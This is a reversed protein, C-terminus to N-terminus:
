GVHSDSPLPSSIPFNRKLDARVKSFEIDGFNIRVAEAEGHLDLDLASGCYEIMWRCYYKLYKISDTNYMFRADHLQSLAVRTSHLATELNGLGADVVAELINTEISLKTSPLECKMVAAAKRLANSAERYNHHAAFDQAKSWLTGFRIAV